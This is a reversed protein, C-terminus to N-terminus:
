RAGGAVLPFERRLKLWVGFNGDSSHPLDLLDYEVELRVTFLGIRWNLGASLDVGHTVGFVSDDEYRYAATASAELLGIWYRYSLGLDLLSTERPRHDRMGDFRLFSCNGRGNLSHRSQELLLRDARFHVGKYPDISDDNYEFEVNAFGRQQRYDLGLRHRNVDRPPYSRFRRHDIDENQLSVAYYPSWGGHFAQQVRFDLRDRNLVRGQATDYLYSVLVTQGNAIRGSMMRYLSTYRGIQVVNYDRGAFYIRRRDGDTVLISARRVDTHALYTPVPDRFTVAEGVVVGDRGDDEVSQRAHNYTLNSSLRGWPNERNLAATAVGGWERVDGGHRQDQALGYVSLASSLYDGLQHSLGADGRFLDLAANGFSEHLYQLRYTSALSSTHQLRLQPAVEYVDRALDGSEDQFRIVTDLRSRRDAGFQLAHNLTWYNRVTEFRAQTGSYEARNDDYEYALRLEHYESPRWAAEYGLRRDHRREDDNLARRFSLLEEYSQEFSLRMPLARDNYLLEAGYRERQRELSPLFLRPVRDDQKFAFVNSSIIGAPFLTVRADYQFVDGHAHHRLDPGPRSERFSEQSFGGGVDFQYQLLREDLIDGMGRLGLTEEIRRVDDKQRDRLSYRGLNTLTQRRRWEAEFGAFLSLERFRLLSGLQWPFIRARESSPSAPQSAPAEETADSPSGLSAPQSAPAEAEHAWAVSVDVATVAILIARLVSGSWRM